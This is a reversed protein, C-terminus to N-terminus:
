IYDQVSHHSSLMNLTQFRMERRDLEAEPNKETRITESSDAQLSPGACPSSLHHIDFNININQKAIWTWFLIKILGLLSVVWM